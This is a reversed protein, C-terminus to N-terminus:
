RGVADRGQWFLLAGWVRWSGLVTPLLRGRVVFWVVAATVLAPPAGYGLGVSTLGILRSLSRPWVTVLVLAALPVLPVAVAWALHRRASGAPALLGAAVAALSGGVFGTLWWGPERVRERGDALRLFCREGLPWWTREESTSAGPIGPDLRCFGDRRRDVMEAAVGGALAALGAFVLVAAAAAAM